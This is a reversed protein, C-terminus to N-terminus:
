TGLNPTLPADDQWSYFFAMFTASYNLIIGLTTYFAVMDPMCYGLCATLASSTIAIAIWQTFLLNNKPNDPMQPFSTPNDVRIYEAAFWVINAVTFLLLSILWYQMSIILLLSAILGILAQLQILLRYTLNDYYNSSILLLGYALAFSTISVGALATSIFGLPIDKLKATIFGVAFLHGAATDVMAAWNSSM